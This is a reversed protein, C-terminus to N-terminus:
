RTSASTGLSTSAACGFGTNEQMEAFVARADTAVLVKRILGMVIIGAGFVEGLYAYVNGCKFCEATRMFLRGGDHEKDTRVSVTVTTMQDMAGFSATIDDSSQPAEQWVRGVGDDIIEGALCLFVEIVAVVVENFVYPFPRRSRSSVDVREHLRPKEVVNEMARRVLRAAADVIRPTERLKRPEVRRETLLEVGIDLYAFVVDAVGLDNKKNM